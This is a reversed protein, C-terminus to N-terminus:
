LDSRLVLSAYRDLRLLRRTGNNKEDIRTWTANIKSWHIIGLQLAFAKQLEVAASSKQDDSLNQFSLTISRGGKETDMSFLKADGDVNVLARRFDTSLDKVMGSVMYQNLFLREDNELKQIKEWILMKDMIQYFKADASLTSTIPKDPVQKAPARIIFTKVTKLSLFHIISYILIITWALSGCLYRLM